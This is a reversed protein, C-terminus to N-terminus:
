AAPSIHKGVDELNREAKRRENARFRFRWEKLATLVNLSPPTPGAHISPGREDRELQLAQMAQSRLKGIDSLREHFTDFADWLSETLEAGIANAAAAVNERAEQKLMPLPGAADQVAKEAIQAQRNARWLEDSAKKVKELDDPGADRNVSALHGEAADQAKRCEALQKLAKSHVALADAYPKHDTLAPLFFLPKETM